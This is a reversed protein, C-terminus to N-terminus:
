YGIKNIIYKNIIHEMDSAQNAAQKGIRIM